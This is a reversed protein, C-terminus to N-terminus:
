SFIQHNLTLRGEDKFDLENWKGIKNSSSAESDKTDYIPGPSYEHVSVLINRKSSSSNQCIQEESKYANQQKGSKKGSNTSSSSQSDKPIYVPGPSYDRRAFKVVPKTDLPQVLNMTHSHQLADLYSDKPRNNQPNYRPSVMPNVRSAQLQPKPKSETGSKKESLKFTTGLNLKLESKIKPEDDVRPELKLHSSDTSNKPGTSRSPSSSEPRALQLTAATLLLALAIRRDILTM